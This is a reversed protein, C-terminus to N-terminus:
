IVVFFQFIDAKTKVKLKMTWEQGKKSNCVILYCPGDPLWGRQLLLVLYVILSWCLLIEIIILSGPLSITPIHHSQCTVTIIILRFVINRSTMRFWNIVGYVRGGEVKSRNWLRCGIGSWLLRTIPTLHVGFMIYTLSIACVRSLQLFVVDRKIAGWNYKSFSVFCKMESSVIMLWWNTLSWFPGITGNEMRYPQLLEIALM